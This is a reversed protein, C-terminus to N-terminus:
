VPHPPLGGPRPGHLGGGPSARPARRQAAAGRVCPRGQLYSQPHRAQRPGTPYRRVWRAPAPFWPSEARLGAQTPRAARVPVRLAKGTLVLGPRQSGNRPESELFPSGPRRALRARRTSSRRTPGLEEFIRRVAWPRTRRATPKSGSKGASRPPDDAARRLGGRGALAPYWGLAASAQGDGVPSADPSWADAARRPTWLLPHSARRPGRRLASWSCNSPRLPANLINGPAHVRPAFGPWTRRSRSGISRPVTRGGHGRSSCMTSCSTMTRKRLSAPAGYYACTSCTRAVNTRTRRAPRRRGLGDRVSTPANPERAARIGPTLGVPVANGDPSVPQAATGYPPSPPRDADHPAFQTSSSRLRSSRGRRDPLGAPPSKVTPGTSGGARGLLRRSTTPGTALGRTHADLPPAPRATTSGASTTPPATNLPLSDARTSPLHPSSPPRDSPPRARLGL